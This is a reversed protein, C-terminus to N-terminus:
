HIVIVVSKKVSSVRIAVTDDLPPPVDEGDDEIAGHAIAIATTNGIRKTAATTATSSYTNTM